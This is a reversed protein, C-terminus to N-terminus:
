STLFIFLELIPWTLLGVLKALTFSVLGTISLLGGLFMAPPVLWLVIINAMPSVINLSEFTVATIPLFVITAALTTSLDSLVSISLKFTITLLIDEVPISRIKNELRKLLHRIRHNIGPELWPIGATAALSLQFSVSSVM